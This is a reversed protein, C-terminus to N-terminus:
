KVRAAEKPICVVEADEAGGDRLRQAGSSTGSRSIGHLLLSEPSRLGHSTWSILSALPAYLLALDADALEDSREIAYAAATLQTVVATAFRMVDAAERDLARLEHELTRAIAAIRETAIAGIITPEDLAITDRLRRVAPLRQARLEHAGELIELWEDNTLRDAHALFSIAQADSVDIVGHALMGALLSEERRELAGHEFAIM